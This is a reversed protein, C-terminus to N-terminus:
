FFISLNFSFQRMKKPFQTLSLCLSTFLFNKFFYFHYLSSKIKFDFLKLVIKLFYSVTHTETINSINLKKRRQHLNNLYILM